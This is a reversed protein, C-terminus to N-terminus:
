IEQSRAGESSGRMRLARMPSVRVEGAGFGLTANESAHYIESSGREDSALASESSVQSIFRALQCDCKPKTTAAGSKLGLNGSRWTGWRCCQSPPSRALDEVPGAWAM